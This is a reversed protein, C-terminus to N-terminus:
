EFLNTYLREGESKAKEFELIQNTKNEVKNVIIREKEIIPFLPFMTSDKGYPYYKSLNLLGLDIKKKIIKKNSETIKDLFEKNKIAYDKIVEVLTYFTKASIMIVDIGSNIAMIVSDSPKYGNDMLSGMFIDDSFILGDHQLKKILYEDIMKSSLCSPLNDSFELFNVHSMLVGVGKDHNILSQFPALYVNFFDDKSANIKPLIKHPDENTNGPFHKLVSYVNASKYADVECVAYKEIQELSGFTRLDLFSKNSDTLVEVVPSLNVNIGLSSLQKAQNHYLAYADELSLHESIEKPSPLASCIHRLRNVSGGEHDIAIYPPILGTNINYNKISQIYEIIEEYSKSINYSFLLVGGPTYGKNIDHKDSYIKNGSLNVLFLQSIKQDISLSSIYQNIAYSSNNSQILENIKQVRSEFDRVSKKEQTTENGKNNCSCLFLGCLFFVCVFTFRNIKIMM